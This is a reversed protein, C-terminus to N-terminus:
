RNEGREEGENLMLLIRARRVQRAPHVGKNIIDELRKKEEATFQWDVLKRKDNRKSSIQLYSLAPLLPIFRTVPLPILDHSSVSSNHSFTL